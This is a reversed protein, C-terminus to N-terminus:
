PKPNIRSWFNKLKLGYRTAEDFCHPIRVGGSRHEEETLIYNIMRDGSGHRVATREQRGLADSWFVLVNASSMVSIREGAGSGRMYLPLIRDEVADTDEGLQERVLVVYQLEFPITVIGSGPRVSPVGTVRQTGCGEIFYTQTGSSHEILVRDVSADLNGDNAVTLKGSLRATQRGREIEYGSLELDDNSLAFHLRANKGLVLPIFNTQLTLFLAVISAAAAVILNSASLYRIWGQESGCEACKSADNPIPSSCAVCKKTASPEMLAWFDLQLVFPTRKVEPLYYM